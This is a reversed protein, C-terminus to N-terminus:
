IKRLLVKYNNGDEANRENVLYFGNNEYFLILKEINECELFVFTGGILRRAQKITEMAINLLEGGSISSNINPDFNRSLQAILFCSGNYNNSNDPNGFYFELKKAKKESLFSKSISVNKVLITYYGVAEKSHEEFVFYTISLHGKATISAKNKIFDEIEHNKPCYFSSCVKKIQEESLDLINFAVFGM